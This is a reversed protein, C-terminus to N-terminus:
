EAGLKMTVLIAETLGSNRCNHSEVCNCIHFERKKYLNGFIVVESHLVMYIEHDKDQHHLEIEKGPEIRISSAEKQFVIKKERGASIQETFDKKILEKVLKM